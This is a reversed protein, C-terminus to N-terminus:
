NSVTLTLCYGFTTTAANPSAAVHVFYIGPVGIATTASSCHNTASINDNVALQNPPIRIEVTSDIVGGPGCTSGGGPGVEATLNV